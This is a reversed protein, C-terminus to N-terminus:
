EAGAAESPQASPQRQLLLSLALFATAYVLFVRQLGIVQGLVGGLLSGVLGGSTGVLPTLGSVKGRGLRAGTDAFRTLNVIQVTGLSLGLLVGGAGLLWPARGLGLLLLALAALGFSARYILEDDFRSVLGGFFFLAVM